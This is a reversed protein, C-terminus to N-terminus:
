KASSKQNPTQMTQLNRVAFHRFTSPHAPYHQTKADRHILKQTTTSAIAFHKNSNKEPPMQGLVLPNGNFNLALVNNLSRVWL